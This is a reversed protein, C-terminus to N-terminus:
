IELPDVELQCRVRTRSALAPLAASWAALFHQLAPRSHSEVLLQAREINAVRVVRLPVPDYLTVGSATPFDAPQNEPLARAQALFELALKL